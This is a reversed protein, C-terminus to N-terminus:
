LLLTTSVSVPGELRQESPQSLEPRVDRTALSCVVDPLETTCTAWVHVVAASHSHLSCSLNVAAALGWYLM